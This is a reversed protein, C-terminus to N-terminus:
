DDAVADAADADTLQGVREGAYGFVSEYGGASMLIPYFDTDAVHDDGDASAFPVGSPVREFNEVFVEYDTAPAKPVRGTLRFVPLDHTPEETTPLVGTAGLFAEVLREANEAAQESWQLGCEVEVIRPYAILRGDAYDATEVVADVPLHACLEAVEPDVTDVLVFPNAYSQTSHLALTTCGDLEDLLRRALRREHSEATADGPFARNLDDDLYRVGRDLARENAVVFKVPRQFTPPDALLAEVARPGCPEDGHIGAVVAVEPDDGFERIRM